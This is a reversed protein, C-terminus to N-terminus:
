SFGVVMKEEENPMYCNTFVYPETTTLSSPNEEGDPIMKLLTAVAKDARGGLKCDAIENFACVHNYIGGNEYVGYPMASMRGVSQDYEKYAPSCIPVGYKNEMKDIANLLKPL